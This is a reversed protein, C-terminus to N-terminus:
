EVCHMCLGWQVHMGGMSWLAAASRPRAEVTLALAEMEHRLRLRVTPDTRM